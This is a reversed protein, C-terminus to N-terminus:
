QVVGNLMVVDNTMRSITNGLKKISTMGESTIFVEHRVHEAFLAIPEADTACDPITWAYPVRWSIYGSIWRYSNLGDIDSLFLRPIASSCEARDVAFENDYGVGHWIGAGNERTHSWVNSFCSYAFHGTHIGEDCPVEEVSINKFSVDKPGVSLDLDMGLYGAENPHLGYSVSHVDDVHVSQPETISLRPTYIVDGISVNLPNSSAKFPCDYYCINGERRLSGQTAIWSLGSMPPSERCSISEGVGFKHRTALRNAPAENIPAVSVRVATAIGVSSIITGTENETLTVKASAGNQKASASVGCCFSEWTISQRPSVVAPLPTSGERLAIGGSLSLNLTGGRAGGYVMVSLKSSTSQHPVFVGPSDEYGDEFIVVSKDFSACVTACQDPEEKGDADGFDSGSDGSMRKLNFKFEEIHGEYAYLGDVVCSKCNCSDVHRVINSAPYDICGCQCGQAGISNSLPSSLVIDGRLFDPMTALRYRSEMDNQFMKELTFKVPWQVNVSRKTINTVVPHSRESMRQDDFIGFYSIESESLVEHCVGILLPFINTEGANAVFSYDGLITHADGKVLIRSPGKAVAVKASYYAGEDGSAIREHVNHLGDAQIKPAPLSIHSGISPIQFVQSKGDRWVRLMVNTLLPIDNIESLDYRFVMAGSPFLEGYVSIPNLPLRGLLANQWTLLLTNSSTVSYHFLSACGNPLHRWNVAPAISIPYDIISIFDSDNPPPAQIIGCSFVRLRECFNSGLRFCWNGDDIYFWDEYAGFAIWEENTIVSSMEQSSNQWDLGFSDSPMIDLTSRSSVDKEAAYIVSQSETLSTKSGYGSKTSGKYIACTTCIFIIVTEVRPRSLITTLRKFPCFGNEVLYLAVAVALCIALAFLLIVAPLTMTADIIVCDALTICRNKLHM